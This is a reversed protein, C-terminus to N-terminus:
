PSLPLALPSNVSPALHGQPPATVQWLLAGFTDALVIQPAALGDEPESVFVLYAAGTEDVLWDPDSYRWGQGYLPFSAGPTSPALWAVTPTFSGVPTATYAIADTIKGWAPQSEHIAPTNTLRQLDEGDAGITYLDAQGARDSQFAIRTGDPSWAPQRDAAPDTTLRVLGTGDSEVLYIDWQGERDSAFAVRTGDPSLTPDRDAGPHTTLALPIGQAIEQLLFLDPNGTRDSVFVLTDSTRRDTGLSPQSDVMTGTTIADTEGTLLNVLVIDGNREAALTTSAFIASFNDREGPAPPEPAPDRDRRNPQDDPPCTVQPDLRGFPSTSGSPDIAIAVVDGFPQGALEPTIEFLYTFFRGDRARVAALFQEGQLDGNRDAYIEVRTGAPLYPDILGQAFYWESGDAQPRIGVECIVPAAMGGNGGNTNIIGGADNDDISNVTLHIERALSDVRAGYLTNSLLENGQVRVRFSGATALLGDQGNNFIANDEINGFAVGTLAIGNLGNGAIRNGTIHFHDALTLSIGNGANAFGVFEFFGGFPFARGIVNRDVLLVNDRGSVRRGEIGDGNNGGIVNDLIEVAMQRAIFSDLLIGPGDNGLAEDGAASLGVFNGRIINSAAQRFAQDRVHIGPGGNASILNGAAPDLGGIQVGACEDLRIGGGDNGDPSLGAEDTGVFNGQISVGVSREGYIGYGAMGRVLNGAFSRGIEIGSSEVREFHIGHWTPNRDTVNRERILNNVLVINDGPQFLHIGVGDVTIQLGNLLVNSAGNRIRVGDGSESTIGISEGRAYDTTALRVMPDYLDERPTTFGVVSGSPEVFRSEIRGVGFSDQPPDEILLAVDRLDEFALNDLTYGSCGVLHLGVDMAPTNLQRGEDGDFETNKVRFRHSNEIRFGTGCWFVNGSLDVAGSDRMVLGTPLSRPFAEVEINECNEILIGEQWGAPPAIDTIGIGSDIRFLNRETVNRIVAGHQTALTISISNFVNDRLEGGTTDEVVLGIRNAFAFPDSETPITGTGFRLQEFRNRVGGNVVMGVDNALMLTDRVLNDTADRSVLLGIENASNPPPSSGNIAFGGLRGGVIRTGVADELWIGIRNGSIDLGDVRNFATGNTLHLGIDGASVTDAWRGIVALGGITNYQGGDFVVGTDTYDQISASITVNESNLVLAGIETSRVTGRIEVNASNEVLVGIQARPGGWDIPIAEMELLLEVDRANRITVLNTVGPELDTPRIILEASASTGDGDYIFGGGGISLEGTSGQAPSAIVTAFKGSFIGALEIAQGDGPTIEVFDEIDETQIDEWSFFSGSPSISFGPDCTSCTGPGISIGEEGPIPRFGPYDAGWSPPIVKTITTVSRPEDTGPCDDSLTVCDTVYTIKGPPGTTGARSDQSAWYLAQQLDFGGELVLSHVDAFRTLTPAPVRNRTIRVADSTGEPTTVTVDWLDADSNGPASGYFPLTLDFVRASSSLPESISQAIEVGEAQRDETDNIDPSVLEFTVSTDVEGTQRGLDGGTLLLTSNSAISGPIVGNLVPDDLVRLRLVPDPEVLPEGERWRLRIEHVGPTQDPFLEATLRAFDSRDELLGAITADDATYVRQDGSRELIIAHRNPVFGAGDLEFFRDPYTVIAIEPYRFLIPPRVATIEPVVEALPMPIPVRAAGIRYTARVEGALGEPFPFEARQLGPGPGAIVREAEVSQKSGREDTLELIPLGQVSPNRRLRLGELAIVSPGPRVGPAPEPLADPATSSLSGRWDTVDVSQIIPDFPNGVIFVYPDHPSNFYGAPNIQVGFLAGIRDALKGGASIRATIQQGTVVSALFNAIGQLPKRALCLTIQQLLPTSLDEILAMVADFANDGDSDLLLLVQQGIAVSADDIWEQVENDCDFKAGLIVELLELSGVCINMVIVFRQRTEDNTWTYDGEGALDASSDIWTGGLVQLYYAGPEADDYDFSGDATLGPPGLNSLATLLGNIVFGIPNLYRYFSKASLVSNQSVGDLEFTHFSADRNRLRLAEDLTDIFVPQGALDHVEDVEIRSWYAIREIPVFDRNSVQAAQDQFGIDTARLRELHNIRTGPPTDFKAGGAAAKTPSTAMDIVNLTPPLPPLTEGYAALMANMADQVAQDQFPDPGNPWNAEIVAAFTATEPLGELTADMIALRAPNDTTLLPNALVAAKATSRANIVLEADGEGLTVLGKENPSTRSLVTVGLYVNSGTTYDRPVAANVTPGQARVQIAFSGTADPYAEDFGNGVVYDLPDLGGPLELRGTVTVLEDVPARGTVLWAAPALSAHFVFVASTALILFARLLM